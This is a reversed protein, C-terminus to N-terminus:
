DQGVVVGRAPRRRVAFYDVAEVDRGCRDDDGCTADAAVVVEHALEPRAPEAARRGLHERADGGV